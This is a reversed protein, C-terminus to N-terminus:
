AISSTEICCKSIKARDDTNNIKKQQFNLQVRDSNRCTQNLTHMYVLLLCCWGQIAHQKKCPLNIMQEFKKTMKLVSAIKIQLFQFYNNSTGWKGGASRHKVLRWDTLSVWCFNAPFPSRYWAYNTDLWLTAELVESANWSISTIWKEYLMGKLIELPSLSQVTSEIHVECSIVFKTGIRSPHRSCKMMRVPHFRYVKM